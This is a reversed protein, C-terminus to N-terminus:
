QSGELKLCKSCRRQGCPSYWGRKVRAKCLAMGQMNGNPTMRTACLHAVKGYYSKLWAREKRVVGIM